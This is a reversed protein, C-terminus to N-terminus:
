TLMKLWKVGIISKEVWQFRWLVEKRLCKWPTYFHFMTTFHTFTYSISEAFQYWKYFKLFKFFVWPPTNCKTCNCTKAQLNVLLMVGTNTKKWTKVQGFPLFNRLAGCTCFLSFNQLLPSLLQFHTSVQTAITRSSSNCRWCM